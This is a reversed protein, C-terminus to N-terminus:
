EHESVRMEIVYDEVVERLDRGFKARFLSRRIANVAKGTLHESCVGALLHGRVLEWEVENEMGRRVAEMAMPLSERMEWQSPYSRYSRM